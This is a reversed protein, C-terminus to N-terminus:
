SEGLVQDAITLIEEIRNFGGLKSLAVLAKNLRSPPLNSGWASETYVVNTIKSLTKSNDAAQLIDAWTREAPDLLHIRKNEWDVSIGECDFM